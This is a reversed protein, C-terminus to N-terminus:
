RLFLQAQRVGVRTWHKIGAIAITNMNKKGSDGRYTEM